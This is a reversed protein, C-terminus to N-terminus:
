ILSVTRINFTSSNKWSGSYDYPLYSCFKLIDAQLVSCNLLQENIVTLASLLQKNAPLQRWFYNAVMLFTKNTFFWCYHETYAKGLPSNVTYPSLQHSSHCRLITAAPNSQLNEPKTMATMNLFSNFPPPPFRHSPASYNIKTTLDQISQSQFNVRSVPSVSFTQSFADKARWPKWKTEELLEWSKLPASQSSTHVETSM